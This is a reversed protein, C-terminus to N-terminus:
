DNVSFYDPKAVHLRSFSQRQKEEASARFDGFRLNDESRHWSFDPRAQILFECFPDLLRLEPNLEEVWLFQGMENVEVFVHEGGPTVIMDICGFIIGLRRLLERCGLDIPEPIEVPLVRLDTFALKWDLRAGPIEQSLLKAAVLHSGIYTLRLEHAKEVRQQFIGPTLCLVDDDPLDERGVNSTFTLASGNEQRWQAPYFPKYVARGEYRDLFDRIKTPDNSCLTPPVTLGAAM